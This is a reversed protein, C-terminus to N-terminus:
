EDENENESKDDDREDPVPLVTVGELDDPLERLLKVLGDMRSM